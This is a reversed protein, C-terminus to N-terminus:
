DSPLEGLLAIIESYARSKGAFYEATEKDPEEDDLLIESTLYHNKGIRECKEILESVTMKSEKKNKM